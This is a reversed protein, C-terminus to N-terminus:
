FYGRFDNSIQGDYRLWNYYWNPIKLAMGNFGKAYCYKEVVKEVNFIPCSSLLM